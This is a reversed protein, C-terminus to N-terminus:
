SSQAIVWKSLETFGGVPQENIEIYPVTKWNEHKGKHEIYDIGVKELLTKAHACWPCEPLTWIVATAAKMTMNM